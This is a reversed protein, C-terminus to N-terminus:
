LLHLFVTLLPYITSRSTMPCSTSLCVPKPWTEVSHSQDRDARAHRFLFKVEPLFFHLAKIRCLKGSLVRGGALLGVPLFDFFCNLPSSQTQARFDCSGLVFRSPMAGAAKQSHRLPWGELNEIERLVTPLMKSFPQPQGTSVMCCLLNINCPESPPCYSSHFGPPGLPLGLSSVCQLMVGNCGASREGNRGSEEQGPSMM